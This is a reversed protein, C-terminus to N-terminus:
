LEFEYSLASLVFSPATECRLIRNGLSVSILGAEKAENVEDPSFGGESGVVISVSSPREKGSILDKVTTGDENEYCLLPFSAKKAEKEFLNYRFIIATGIATKTM